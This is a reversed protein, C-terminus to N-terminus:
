VPSPAANGGEARATLKPIVHNSAQWAVDMGILLWEQESKQFFGVEAASSSSKVFIKLVPLPNYSDETMKYVVMFGDYGRIFWPMGKLAAKIRGYAMAQTEFQTYVKSYNKKEM